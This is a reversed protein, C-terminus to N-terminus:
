SNIKANKGDTATQALKQGAKQVAPTKTLTYFTQAKSYQGYVNKYIKL